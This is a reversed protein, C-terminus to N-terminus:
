GNTPDETDKAMSNEQIVALKGRKQRCVDGANIMCQINGSTANMLADSVTRYDEDVISNPM